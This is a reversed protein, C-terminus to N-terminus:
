SAKLTLGLNFAVVSKYSPGPPHEAKREYWTFGRWSEAVLYVDYSSVHQCDFPQIDRDFHEGVFPVSLIIGSMFALMAYTRSRGKMFGAVTDLGTVSLM